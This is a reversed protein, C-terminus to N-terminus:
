EIIYTPLRTAMDTQRRAILTSYNVMSNEGDDTLRLEALEALEIM